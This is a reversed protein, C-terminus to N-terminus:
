KSHTLSVMLIAEMDSTLGYLEAFRTKSMGLSDDGNDPAQRAVYSGPSASAQDQDHDNRRFVGMPQEGDMSMPSDQGNPTSPSTNALDTEVANSGQRHDTFPPNPAIYRVTRGLNTGSTSEMHPVNSGSAKSRSPRSPPKQDFTCDARRSHCVTCRQAGPPVVCRTKRRRCADCPRIARRPRSRETPSPRSDDDASPIGPDPAMMM